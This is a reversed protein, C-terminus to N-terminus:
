VCQQSEQEDPRTPEHNDCKTSLETTAASSRCRQPPLQVAVGERVLSWPGRALPCRMSREWRRAAPPEARWLIGSRSALVINKGVRLPAGALPGYELTM